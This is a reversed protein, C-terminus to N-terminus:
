RAVEGVVAAALDHLSGREPSRVTPRGVRARLRQAQRHFEERARRVRSAVTGPPLELLTATESLTMEEIDCLVFVTRLDDDMTDLVEDLLARARMRDLAVDQLPAPDVLLSEDEGLVERRRAAARRVHSAVNMAVAFLFRRERGAVISTIKQQAIVFVQQTADDAWAEPVGLRRVSSWVFDTNAALLAGLDSAELM